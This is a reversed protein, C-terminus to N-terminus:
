GARKTAALEELMSLRSELDETSFTGHGIKWVELAARMRIGAKPDEMAEILVSIARDADQQARGV